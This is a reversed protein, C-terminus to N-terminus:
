WMGGWRWRMWLFKWRGGIRGGGWCNGCRKECMGFIKKVALLQEQLRQVDNLDPGWEMSKEEAGRRILSIEEQAADSEPADALRIAKVYPRQLRDNGM